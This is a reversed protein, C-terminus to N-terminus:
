EAGVTFRGGASRGFTEPFYMEYAVSPMVMFEGPVSARLLYTYEYTGAPVYNAFLAVKEDRIETHSFIWWGWVDKEDARQFQPMDMLQSTTRLSTDVAETGAPIPDEVILYHLSSPAILTLKVRIIDGVKAQSIEEDPKGDLTYERMVLIGRNLPQVLPVPLYTKLYASYYLAGKEAQDRSIPSRELIIRNGVDKLLDAIPVIVSRAEDVNEPRVDDGLVRKGNLGVQFRYEGQLEGTKAAFDTLAMLAWANEQTTGWRGEQRAAMLWRVANPLLANDPALRTLAKLVVATSRLDTNMMYRDTAVEEWHAGTASLIAQGNLESTLTQVQGAHADGATQLAMALFAKGYHSLLHRKDFLAVARGTDGADVESLVYLMFAQRNAETAEKLDAVGLNAYLYDAGRRIVSEDVGFGALKAENLGLLVYATIYPHSEETYWWGWGGDPNQQAYLKQLGVEVLGPLRAELEDNRINMQKYARWTVVNPLFRSVTQEACEWPFHELYDFGEKMGAVLSPDVRVTLSGQTPEYVDPLQVIEVRQEGALVEGATATVEPTTFHYVPLTLAIADELGGGTAKFTVTVEEGERAVFDNWVVKQLGHAPIEVSQGGGGGGQAEKVEMEVLVQIAQDTNNHVVAALEPHDGIVLFRPTVPRILLDKTVVIDAESSGVQTAATAGDSLMRWTTLSDPLSVSVEARGQADTRVAPEWYATDPFYTRVSQGGEAGGGGKGAPPRETDREALALAMNVATQIGLGRERYFFDMIDPGPRTALALVSADVLALSVEASVGRGGADLTEVTFRATERPGYTGAKDPTVRITLQKEAASVELKVYGVRFSAFPDEATKGKVLAVSVFVNPIFADTIPIDVQQSNSQLAFVQHSLVGAREVTLLAMVEGQYPSPILIHATEGPAYSKKDAILDIRNNNEVRWSVYEDETGSVWLYTASRVENGRADRGTALIRYSGGASPTFSATAAGQGDTTVTQTFVPTDAFKTTWYFAGDPGKEQVSYWKRLAFVVTLPVNPVPESKSNVTIASIEQPKGASGIYLKPALGIYFEGKHVAVATRGSVEQGNVDTIVAEISFTQSATYKAIDAPVTFSAKGEADTTTEGSAVVQSGSEVRFWYDWDHFDYWGKGKWPFYYMQAVINWRVKANAVPGGFYYKASVSVNVTDGQVYEARDASVSIEYEPKRYEAVQFSTSFQPAPPYPMYSSSKLDQPGPASAPTAYIWYTGTPADESLNLDGFVSGMDGVALTQSYFQQGQPDSVTVRVPGFDPLSYRADDDKRIIGKFHVTQGPRYIPRDTYFHGVYPTLWSESQLSFDWPDVGASWRSSAASFSEGSGAVTMLMQWADRTESFTGRWVGQADTTGNLIASGSGDYVSLPLSAIPQGSALDTAWVLMDKPGHKIVVNARTIVVTMASEYSNLPRVDPSSLTLYYVGPALPSVGNVTLAIDKVETENRPADAPLTWARLLSPPNPTFKSRYEWGDGNLKVFEDLSLSYLSLNIRRVNRYGVPVKVENYANFVTADGWRGVFYVSPDLDRTHFALVYDQGLTNGYPDAATGPVTIRYDTAPLLRISLYLIDDYENWYAQWETGAPEVRLTPTITQLLMPGAFVFQVGEYPSAATLDKGPTTAIIKPRPVVQFQWETREALTGGSASRVGAAVEAVYGLGMDLPANSKFTMTEKNWTFAGAVPQNTESNRLAFGGEVSAKDMPQNFAVTVQTTPAIKTGEPKFGVVKPSETTFTWSFDEPLTSGTSDQLGAAVTAKYTTSGALGDAPRFIYISTNLWEGAGEVPPDLRLPQPLGSARKLDTLPVVPRNFIVMVATNREVETAGDAPQTQSVKLNGITQFRLVVEDALPLGSSSKVGKGVVVRYTAARQLEGSPRFVLRQKDVSWEGPVAPEIRVQGQLSKADLPQNFEVVIPSKVDLEESPLPTQRVVKPAAPPQKPACAASVIAALVLLSTILVRTRTSRTRQSM